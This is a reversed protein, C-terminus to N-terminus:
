HRSYRPQRLRVRLPARVKAAAAKHATTSDCFTRDGLARGLRDSASSPREFPCYSKSGVHRPNYAQVHLVSVDLHDSWKLRPNRPHGESARAIQTIRAM